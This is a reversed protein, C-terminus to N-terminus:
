AGGGDTPTLAVGGRRTRRYISLGVVAVVALTLLIPLWVIGFWIGATALGQLISVLSASAEDAVNAPDFQQTTTEVPNPKLSFTVTLTSFAAQATLHAQEAAMTEIQGRVETLQAQVALVDKIETARDMIGQLARETAELNKIRAGLDVIQTTVDETTSREDLIKVAVGRLAELAQDWNAVPIRFTLTAQDSEDNGSRESGSVYGGLDKIKATATNLAADVASVQLVMSGTKIIQLDTTGALEQESFVGDGNADVPNPAPASTAGPAGVASGVTSLIGPASAAGGCAIAVFAILLIVIVISARRGIGARSLM